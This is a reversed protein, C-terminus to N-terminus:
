AASSRRMRHPCTADHDTGLSTWWRECCAADLEARVIRDALGEGRGRRGAARTSLEPVARRQDQIVTERVVGAVQVLSAAGFLCAAWLPGYRYQLVATWALGTSTAVYLARLLHSSRNM